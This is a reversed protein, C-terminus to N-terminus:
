PRVHLQIWASITPTIPRSAARSRPALTTATSREARSLSPLLSLYRARARTTAYWFVAKPAAGRRAVRGVSRAGGVVASTRRWAQWRSIAGSSLLSHKRSAGSVAETRRVVRRALRWKAGHIANEIDFYHVTENM